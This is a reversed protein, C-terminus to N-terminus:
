SDKLSRWRANFNQVLLKVLRNSSSDRKGGTDETESMPDLSDKSDEDLDYDSGFLSGEKRKKEPSVKTAPQYSPDKSVYKEEEDSDFQM